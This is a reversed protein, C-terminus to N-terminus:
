QFFPSVKFTSRIFVQLIRENAYNICFQEFSNQGEGFDEFGFIDLVDIYVAKAGDARSGEGTSENLRQVVWQFALAYLAKLSGTLAQAAQTSPIKSQISGERPAPLCESSPEAHFPAQQATLDIRLTTAAIVGARNRSGGVSLVRQVLISALAPEGLLSAASQLSAEADLLSFM